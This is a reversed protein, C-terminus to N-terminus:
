IRESEQSKRSRDSPGSAGADYAAGALSLRDNDGLLSIDQWVVLRTDGILRLQSDSTDSLLAKPDM